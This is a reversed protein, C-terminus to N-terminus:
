LGLLDEQVHGARIRRVGTSPNVIIDDAVVALVLLHLGARRVSEVLERRAEDWASLVLICSSLEGSRERM